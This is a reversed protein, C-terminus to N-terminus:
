DGPRLVALTVERGNEGFMVVKVRGAMLIYLADGVEDQRAVTHGGLVRKVGVRQAVDDVASAPLDRFISVRSLTARIRAQEDKEFANQVPDASSRPVIGLTM